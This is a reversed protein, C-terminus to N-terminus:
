NDKICRVSLAECKHERETPYFTPSYTYGLAYASGTDYFSTCSWCNGLYGVRMLTAGCYMHGSFPYFATNDDVVNLYIGKNLDDSTGYKDDYREESSGLATAWVGDSGGDPVRWGVPCPDYITKKSAWRSDDSTQDGTYYWDTNGGWCRIATTPNEISFQITGTNSSTEVYDPWTITSVAHTIDSYDDFYIAEGNLFPDKRGWQYLLGLTEVKGPEASLAGLNRDMMIGANNLYVEENFGESTVWIHWSWLITGSMDKAAIVANGQSQGANVLIENNSYLTNYIVSGVAPIESSGFTEWLVDVSAVNGVSENSCGKVAPFSISSGPSVIYCYLM